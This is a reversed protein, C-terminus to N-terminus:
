SAFWAIVECNSVHVLPVTLIGNMDAHLASQGCYPVPALLLVL